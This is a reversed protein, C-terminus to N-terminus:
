CTYPCSPSDFSVTWCGLVIRKNWPRDEAPEVQDIAHAILRMMDDADNDIQMRNALNIAPSSTLGPQGQYGILDM